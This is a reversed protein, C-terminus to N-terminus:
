GAQISTIVEATESLPIFKDENFLLKILMSVELLGMTTIIICWYESWGKGHIVAFPKKCSGRKKLPCRKDCRDKKTEM